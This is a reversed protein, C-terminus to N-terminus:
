KSIEYVLAVEGEFGGLSHGLLITYTGESPLPFELIAANATGGIDDNAALVDGDEDLLVLLPDVTDGPRAETIITILEDQNGSVQFAHNVGQGLTVFQIEGAPIADHEVRRTEILQMFAYYDEAADLVNEQQANAYARYLYLVPNNETGALADDLDDIAEEFDGTSLYVLARSAYLEAAPNLDIALTYDGIADDFQQEANNIEARLAYIASEYQPVDPATSLAHSIDNQAEVTNELGLYSLARVYYGQSYTPNLLLFLSMDLVAREFDQENLAAAGRDFLEPALVPPPQNGEAQPQEQAFAPLVTILVMLLTLAALRRM